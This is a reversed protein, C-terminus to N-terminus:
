QQLNDTLAKQARMNKYEIYNQVATLSELYQLRGVPVDKRLYYVDGLSTYIQSQLLADGTGGQARALSKLAEGYQGADQLGRAALYDEAPHSGDRMQAAKQWYLAAVGGNGSRYIQVGYNYSLEAYQYRAQSALSPDHSAMAVTFEALATEANDWEENRLGQLFHYEPSQVQHQAEAIAGLREYVRLDLRNWQDLAMAWHYYSKAKELNASREAKLGLDWCTEGAFPGALHGVLTLLLICAGCTVHPRMIEWRGIFALTGALFLLSGLLHFTWGIKLSLLTATLRDYLGHIGTITSSRLAPGMDPLSHQGAFQTLAEYQLHCQWYQELWTPQSFAIQLPCSIGLLLLFFACWAITIPRRVRTAIFALVLLLLVAAGYSFPYALPAPFIAGSLLPLNIARFGLFIISDHWYFCEGLLILLIGVLVSARAFLDRSM